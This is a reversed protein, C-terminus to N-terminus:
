PWLRGVYGSQSGLGRVCPTSLCIDGVVLVLLQYFNQLYAIEVMGTNKSVIGSNWSVLCCLAVYAKTRKRRGSAARLTSVIRRSRIRVRRTLAPPGAWAAVPDSADDETTASPSLVIGVTASDASASDGSSDM